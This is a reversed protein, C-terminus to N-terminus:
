GFNTQEQFILKPVFMAAYYFDLRYFKDEKSMVREIGSARTKGLNIRESDPRGRADTDYNQWALLVM